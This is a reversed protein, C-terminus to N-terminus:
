ERQKRETRVWRFQVRLCEGSVTEPKLKLNLTRNLKLNLKLNPKWKLKTNSGASGQRILHSASVDFESSPLAQKDAERSRLGLKEAEMQPELKLSTLSVGPHPRTTISLPHTTPSVLWSVALCLYCRESVYWEV